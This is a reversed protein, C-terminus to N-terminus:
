NLEHALLELEVCDLEVVVQSCTLSHYIIHKKDYNYNNVKIVRETTNGCKNGNTTFESGLSLCPAMCPTASTVNARYLRFHELVEM